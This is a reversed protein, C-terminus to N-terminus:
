YHSFADRGTILGLLGLFGLFGLYGFNRKDM